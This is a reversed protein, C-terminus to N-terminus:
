ASEAHWAGERLRFLEVGAGTDWSSPHPVLAVFVNGTCAQAVPLLSDLYTRRTGAPGVFLKNDAAGLVLKNFDWVAQQSDAAFESEVLWLGERVYCLQKAGTASPGSAVRCVCVDYLLENLGFEAKNRGDYKSLVRVDSEAAFHARLGEALERVWSESRQANVHKGLTTDIPAVRARSLSESLIGYLDMSRRLIDSAVGVQVYSFGQNM